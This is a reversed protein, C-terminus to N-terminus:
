SPLIKLKGAVRQIGDAIKQAKAANVPKGPDKGMQARRWAFLLSRSVKIGSAVSIRRAVEEWSPLQRHIHELLDLATSRTLFYRGIWYTKEARLASELADRIAANTVPYLSRRVFFRVGPPALREWYGHAAYAPDIALRMVADASVEWLTGTANDRVVNPPTADVGSARVIDLSADPMIAEITRALLAEMGTDFREWTAANKLLKGADARFLARAFEAFTPACELANETKQLPELDNELKSEAARREADDM